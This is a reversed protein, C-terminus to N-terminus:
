ECWSEVFTRSVPPDFQPPLMKRLNDADIRGHPLEDVFEGPAFGVLNYPHEIAAFRAPERDTVQSVPKFRQFSREFVFAGGM